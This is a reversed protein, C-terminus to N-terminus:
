HHQRTVIQIEATSRFVDTAGVALESVSQHLLATDLHVSASEGGDQKVSIAAQCDAAGKALEMLARAYLEQMSADPIQPGAKATAVSAALQACAHKMPQYQRVGAAQLANGLGSSVARLQTGGPGTQWSIVQSQSNEPLGLAGGKEALKAASIVEGKARSTGKPVTGGSTAGSAGVTAGPGASSSSSAAQNTGGLGYTFLAAALGLLAIVSLGVWLRSASLRSRPSRLPLQRTDEAPEHNQESPQGPQDPGSM